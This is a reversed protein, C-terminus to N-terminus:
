STFSRPTITSQSVMTLAACFSFATAIPKDPSIVGESSSIIRTNFSSRWRPMVVGTITPPAVVDVSCVATFIAGSYGSPMTICEGDAASLTPMM